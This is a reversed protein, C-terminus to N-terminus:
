TTLFSAEQMQMGRCIGALSSAHVGFWGSNGSPQRAAKQVNENSKCTAEAGAKIGAAHRRSLRELILPRMESTKMGSSYLTTVVRRQCSDRYQGTAEEARGASAAPPSLAENRAGTPMADQHVLAAMDGCKTGSVGRGGTRQGNRGAGNPGSAQPIEIDAFGLRYGVKLDFVAQISEERTITSKTM